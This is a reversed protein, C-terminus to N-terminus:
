WVLKNLIGWVWDVTLQEAAGASNSNPVSIQVNHNPNPNSPIPGSM